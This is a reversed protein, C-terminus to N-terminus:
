QRKSYTSRKKTSIRTRIIFKNNLPCTRCRSHLTNSCLADSSSRSIIESCFPLDVDIVGLSVDDVHAYILRTFFVHVSSSLYKPKVPSYQRSHLLIQGTKLAEATLFWRKGSKTSLPRVSVVTHWLVDVSM